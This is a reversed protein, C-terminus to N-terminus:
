FCRLATDYAVIINYQAYKEKIDSRWRLSERSRTTRVVISYKCDAYFHMTGPLEIKYTPPLDYTKGGNEFTFPLVDEFLLTGPCIPQSTQQGDAKKWLTHSRDLVSVSIAAADTVTLNM